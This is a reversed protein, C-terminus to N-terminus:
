IIELEVDEAIGYKTKHDDFLAKLTDVYQKHIENVEERTPHPNKPVTM